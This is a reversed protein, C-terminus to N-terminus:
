LQVLYFENVLRHCEGTLFSGAFPESLKLPGPLAQLRNIPTTCSMVLKKFNLQALTFPENANYMVNDEYTYM